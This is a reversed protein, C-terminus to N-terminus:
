AIATPEFIGHGGDGTPGMIRTITNPTGLTIKFANKSSGGAVYVAGTSDVAIGEANHFAHDAGGAGDGTADMILTPTGNGAIRFVTDGGAIFLTGNADLAIEPNGLTHGQGDGSADMILTVAGGAAIKFVNASFAGAVYVTGNGDVQIGDPCD